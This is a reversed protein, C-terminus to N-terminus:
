GFLANFAQTAYYAAIGGLLSALVVGGVNFVPLSIPNMFILAGITAGIGSIAGVFACEALARATMTYSANAICNAIAGVVAGILLLVLIAAVVAIRGSPDVANVPDDNAYVYRNASNLDDLTGIAPRLLSCRLPVATSKDHSNPGGVFVEKM